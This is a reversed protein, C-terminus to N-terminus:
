CQDYQIQVKALGRSLWSRMMSVDSNDTVKQSWLSCDGQEPGVSTITSKLHSSNGVQEINQGHSGRLHGCAQQDLADLAIWEVEKEDLCDNTNSYCPCYDACDDNSKESSAIPVTRIHAVLLM